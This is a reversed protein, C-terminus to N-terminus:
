TDKRLSNVYLDELKKAALEIDYGSSQITNKMTIRKRQNKNERLIADVWPQTGNTIPVFTVLDTIKSEKSITDALLCPLGSIQAEIATGPLGEALSPLLFLDAAQLLNPIDSRMGLFKTHELICLTAAHQQLRHMLDTPGDGAILLVSNPIQKHVASFVDLLFFQNKVESIRAVHLMVFQDDRLSLSHRLQQRTERNFLFPDIPRANPLLILQDSQATTKGFLSRGAVNSCAIPHTTTRRLLPRFISERYPMNKYEGRSHVMRVPVGAWKAILADMAVVPTFNHIHIIQIDPNTKLIHWLVTSNKLPSKSRMPRRFVRGGLALVEDEFYDKEGGAKTESILFDFQIRDRNMHRYYHMVTSEQGGCDLSGMINLVRLSM